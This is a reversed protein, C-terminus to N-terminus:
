LMYAYFDSKGLQQWGEGVHAASAFKSVIVRIHRARLADLVEQKDQVKEWFVGPDSGDPVEIEALVQTGALRAWYHDVYCAQDGFCAVADGPSVGLAALSQAAPYIQPNYAGGPQHYLNEYRRLEGIQMVALGFALGAFLVAMGSAAERLSSGEPLRLMALLPIMVFLFPGTLYRDQLDIPFYIGLMLLGWLVLPILPLWFVRRRLYVCGMLLASAILIFPEMHGGIFRLLLMTTRAVRLLHGKLYVQPILTDTWYAPDFWLPYTGLPHQAYSYVPPTNIILEEHHKFDAKAHGLNGTHWEHWRGTQDVFFSYNLRASEGTTLRGRQLSIAAIYPGAIAAFVVGAVMTGALIRKRDERARLGWVFLAALLFGSPLFAFSKTLYAAGLAAGLLPFYVFLGGQQLRLLCTAALLFLLLLLSDSRVASLSLERQFSFFLLGLSALSLAPLSFASYTDADPVFKARVRCLERVFLLLAGICCAFVFYNVWYYTQLESWRSPHAVIQGAALAAAYAPNWYGNIVLSWRHAHIADAIDMFAVADGDLQYHDYKAYGVGCLLMLLAYLLVVTRLRATKM